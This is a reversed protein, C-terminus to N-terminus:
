QADETTHNALDNFTAGDHRVAEDGTLRQWRRIALDVYLPDMDICRAIRGVRQAAILTTGSGLFPDLVIDGRETVDLIADAIM